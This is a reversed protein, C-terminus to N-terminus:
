HAGPTRYVRDPGDPQLWPYHRSHPTKEQAKVPLVYREERITYYTDMLMSKLDHKTLYEHIRSKIRGALGRKRKRIDKLKPSADDRVEGREDLVKKFQAVLEHLPSLESLMASLVPLTEACRNGLGSWGLSFEALTAIHRLEDADLVGDKETKAVLQSTDTLDALSINDGTDLVQQMQQVLELRYRIAEPETLIDTALAALRGPESEARRSLAALVRHWELDELSTRAVDVTPLPYTLM